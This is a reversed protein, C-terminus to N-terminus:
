FEHWFYGDQSVIWVKASNWVKTFVVMQTVTMFIQLANCAKFDASNLQQFFPFFFFWIFLQWFHLLLPIFRHQSHSGWSCVDSQKFSPSGSYPSSVGWCTQEWTPHDGYGKTGMTVFQWFSLDYKLQEENLFFMQPFNRLVLSEAPTRRWKWTRLFSSTNGGFFWRLCRWAPFRSRFANNAPLRHLKTHTKPRTKHASRACMHRCVPRHSRTSPSPIEAAGKFARRASPPKHSAAGPPRCRWSKSTRQPPQRIQLLPNSEKQWFRMVTQYNILM